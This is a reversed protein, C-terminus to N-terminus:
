YNKFDSQYIWGNQINFKNKKAKKNVEGFDFDYIENKKDNNIKDKIINSPKSFSKKDIIVIEDEDEDDNLNLNYSFKNKKNKTDSDDHEDNEINEPKIRPGIKEKIKRDKSERM